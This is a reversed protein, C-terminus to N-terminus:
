PILISSDGYSLFRFQNKLAYDYVNRWNEGIFAAILLILTSKPQHFNTIMNDIVRFHYGPVIIMSTSAAIKDEGKKDMWAILAQVSEKLNMNSKAYGDWQELHLRSNIPLQGSFAKVGLWFISELTRVTTTGVAVLTNQNEILALLLEKTVAFHETHMSHDAMNSKVPQFTGAGVHLTIEKMKVQKEALNDMVHRTFHLGATPAAVSGEHKSYVTQYWEKDMEVPERNLYPPIPTFGANEILDIFKSEKDNWSFEINQSSGKNELLKAELLIEHSGVRVNKSLTGQKWRKLNGVLCKWVVPTNHHFIQQYDAPKLPELLFIEVRAGSEKHFILRAPIVRSNNFVLLSGPEIYRDVNRFIDSNIEGHKYVLLKSKDRESIPFKAIREEPLEYSYNSININNAPM